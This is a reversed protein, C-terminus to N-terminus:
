NVIATGLLVRAGTRGLVKDTAKQMEAGLYDVNPPSGFPLSSAYIMLLETYAARLRPESAQARAMVVPDMAEIGSELTLTGRRGDRRIAAAALPPLAFYTQPPANKDKKESAVAPSVVATLAVALAVVLPLARNL